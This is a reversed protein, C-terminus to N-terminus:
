FVSLEDAFGSGFNFRSACATVFKNAFRSFAGDEPEEVPVVECGSAVGDDWGESALIVRSVEPLLRVLSPNSVSEAALPEGNSMSSGVSNADM